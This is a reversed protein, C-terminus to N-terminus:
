SRETLGSDGGEHRTPSREPANAFEYAIRFKRLEDSIDRLRAYFMAIVCINILFGALFLAPVGYQYDRLYQIQQTIIDNPNM